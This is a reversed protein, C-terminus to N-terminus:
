YQLGISRKLTPMTENKLYEYSAFSDIANKRHTNELRFRWKSAQPGLKFTYSEEQAMFKSQRTDVEYGL